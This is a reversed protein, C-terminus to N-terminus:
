NNQAYITVENERFLSDTYFGSFDSVVFVKTHEVVNKTDAHSTLQIYIVGDGDNLNLLKAENNRVRATTITHSIVDIKISHSSLIDYLSFIQFDISDINPILDFPIYTDEISISRNNGKRLRMIRFLKDTEKIGFIQAHKFGAECVESAVIITEPTFGADTLLETMGKFHISLDEHTNKIVFTGRGPSRKLYNENILLELAKRVTERSLQYLDSLERESPIMSGFIYKGDHIDDKLMQALQESKNLKRM